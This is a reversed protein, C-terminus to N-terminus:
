NLSPVFLHVFLCILLCQVAFSCRRRHCQGSCPLDIDWWCLLSVCLIRTRHSLFNELNYYHCCCCCCCSQHIKKAYDVFKHGVVQLSLLAECQQQRNQMAISWITAGTACVQITQTQLLLARSKLPVACVVIKLLCHLLVYVVVCCIADQSDQANGYTSYM